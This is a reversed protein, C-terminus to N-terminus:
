GGFILMFEVAPFGVSRLPGGPVPDGDHEWEQFSLTLGYGAKLRVGAFPFVKWELSLYPLVFWGAGM